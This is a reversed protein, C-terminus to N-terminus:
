GSSSTGTPAVERASDKLSEAMGESQERAGESATERAAGVAQQAVQKGRQLAEQGTEKVTDKLDDATEGIKTDELRTSPLMLGFLFGAAAGALALGAPSQRTVGVKAAGDKLQGSDPVVGTVSSVLADAKDVVSNKGASITGVVASTRRAVSDRVRGKVDAKRGLAHVTDGMQVRTDRIEERIADAPRDDGLQARTEEIEARIRVPDKGM